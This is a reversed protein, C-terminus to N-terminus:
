YSHAVDMRVGYPTLMRDAEQQLESMQRDREAQLRELALGYKVSDFGGDPKRAEKIAQNTSTLYANHVQHARAAIDSRIDDPNGEPANGSEAIQEARWNTLAQEAKDQVVDWAGNVYDIVDSRQRWMGTNQSIWDSQANFSMEKLQKAKSYTMTALPTYGNGRLEENFSDATGNCRSIVTMNGTEKNRVFSVWHNRPNALTPHNQSYCWQAFDYQTKTLEYYGSNDPMHIRYTPKKNQTGNRNYLYVEDLTAGNQINEYIFDSPTTMKGSYRTPKILQSIIRERQVQATPLHEDYGHLKRQEALKKAAAEEAKKKAEAAEARRKIDEKIRDQDGMLTAMQSETYLVGFAHIAGEELPEEVMYMKDGTSRDTHYGVVQVLKRDWDFLKHGVPYKMSQEKVEEPKKRLYFDGPLVRHITFPIDTESHYQGQITIEADGDRDVRDLTISNISFDQPIVTGVAFPCHYEKNLDSRNFCRALETMQSQKISPVLELTGDNYDKTEDSVSVYVGHLELHTQLAMSCRMWDIGPKDSHNWTVGNDRAYQMAADKGVADVLAKVKAKKDPAAEVAEKVTEDVKRPTETASVATEPSKENQAPEPVPTEVQELKNTEVTILERKQEGGETWKVQVKVHYADEVGIIRVDDVHDFDGVNSAWATSEALKRGYDGLRYQVDMGVQRITVTDNLHSSANPMWKQHLQASDNGNLKSLMHHQIAMSARMWDIGPKDSPKWSIGADKASQMISERSHSQLMSAMHAKADVGAPLTFSIEKPAVPANSVPSADPTGSIVRDTSKVQSPKVWFMQPFSKGSRHVMRQVQVLGARSKMLQEDHAAQALLAEKGEVIVLPHLSKVIM